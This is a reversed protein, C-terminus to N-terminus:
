QNPYRKHGLLTMYLSRKRFLARRKTKRDKLISVDQHGLIFTSHFLNQTDFNLENICTFAASIGSRKSTM